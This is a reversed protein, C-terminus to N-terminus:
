IKFYNIHGYIWCFINEFSPKELGDFYICRKSIYKEIRKKFFLYAVIEFIETILWLPWLLIIARFSM